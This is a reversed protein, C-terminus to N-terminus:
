RIALGKKYEILSNNSSDQKRANDININITALVYQRLLEALQSKSNIIYMKTNGIKGTEMILEKEVLNLLVRQLSRLPIQTIKSIESASYDFEQNLVLFDLVRATTNRFVSELPRNRKHSVQRRLSTDAM